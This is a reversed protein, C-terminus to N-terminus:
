QPTIGHAKRNSGQEVLVASATQYHTTKDNQLTCMELMSAIKWTFFVQFGWPIFYHNIGSLKWLLKFPKKFFLVCIFAIYKSFIPESLFHHKLIYLLLFVM